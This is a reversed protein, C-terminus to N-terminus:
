KGHCRVSWRERRLSFVRLPLRSSVAQSSDKRSWKKLGYLEWLGRVAPTFLGGGWGDCCVWVYVFLEWRQCGPCIIRGWVRGWTCGESWWNMQFSLASLLRSPDDSTRVPMFVCTNILIKFVSKNVNKTIKTKTIKNCAKRM